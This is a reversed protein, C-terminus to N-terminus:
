HCRGARWGALNGCRRPLCDLLRLCSVVDLLYLGLWIRVKSNIMERSKPNKDYKLAFCSTSLLLSDHASQLCCSCSAQIKIAASSRDHVYARCTALM